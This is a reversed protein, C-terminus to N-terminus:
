TVRFFDTVLLYISKLKSCHLKIVYKLKPQNQFPKRNNFCVRVLYHWQLDKVRDRLYSFFDIYM